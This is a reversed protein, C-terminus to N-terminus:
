QKFGKKSNKIAEIFDDSEATDFNANNKVHQKYASDLWSQTIPSNLKLFKQLGDFFIKIQSSYLELKDKNKSTAEIALEHLNEVISAQKGPNVAMSHNYEDPREFVMCFKLFKQVNTKSLMRNKILTSGPSSSKRLYNLINKKFDLMGSFYPPYKEWFETHYWEKQSEFKESFVKLELINQKSLKPRIKKLRGRLKLFCILYEEHENIIKKLGYLEDLPTELSLKKKILNENISNFAIRPKKGKLRLEDYIDVIEFFSSLREKILSLNHKIVKPYLSIEHNDELFCWMEEEDGPFDDFSLTKEINAIRQELIKM